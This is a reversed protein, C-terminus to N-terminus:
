EQWDKLGMVYKAEFRGYNGFDICRWHEVPAVCFVQEWNEGYGRTDNGHTGDMYSPEGCTGGPDKYNQNTTIIIHTDNQIM